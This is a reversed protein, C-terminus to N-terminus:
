FPLSLGTSTHEGAKKNNPRGGYPNNLKSCANHVAGRKAKLAGSRKPCSDAAIAAPLYMPFARM